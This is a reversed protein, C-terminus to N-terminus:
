YGVNRMYGAFQRDASEVGQSFRRVAKVSGKAKSRTAQRPVVGSSAPMEWLCARTSTRSGCMKRMAQDPTNILGKMNRIRRGCLDFFSLARCSREALALQRAGGRARLNGGLFEEPAGGLAEELTAGM